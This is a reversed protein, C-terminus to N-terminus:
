AIIEEKMNGKWDRSQSRRCRSSLDLQVVFLNNVVLKQVPFLLRFSFPRSLCCFKKISWNFSVCDDSIECCGTSFKIVAIEFYIM